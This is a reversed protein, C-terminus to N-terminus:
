EIKNPDNPLMQRTYWITLIDIQSSKVEYVLRYAGHIIERIEPRSFEPVVRGMQPQNRLKECEDFVGRAWKIATPVHDRAIYDTCEDVRDLFQETFIVDM